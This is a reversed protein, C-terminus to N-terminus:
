SIDIQLRKQYHLLVFMFFSCTFHFYSYFGNVIAPFLFYIILMTKGFGKTFPLICKFLKYWSLIYVILGLCGASIIINIFDDHAWIEKNAMKLNLAYIYDFGRGLLQYFCTSSIYDQLDILWFSTRESTLSSLLPRKLNFSVNFGWIFKHLMNSNFFAIGGALLIGCNLLYGKRRQGIKEKMYYFLLIIAPITFTRAGTQLIAWFYIFLIGMHWYSFKKEILWLIMLSMALCCSSAMTHGGRLYMERGWHWDYGWPMILVIVIVCLDLFTIFHLFRSNKRYSIFLQKWAMDRSFFLLQLLMVAYYTYDILNVFFHSSVFSTYVFLFLLYLLLMVHWKELRTRLLTFILIGVMIAALIRNMSIPYVDQTLTAFSFLGLIIIYSDYISYKSRM